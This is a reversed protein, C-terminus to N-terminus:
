QSFKQKKPSQPFIVSDCHEILKFRAIISTILIKSIDTQSM